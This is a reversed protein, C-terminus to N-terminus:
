KGKKEQSFVRFTRSISTKSYKEFIGEKKLLDVDAVTRKSQAWTVRYKDTTLGGAEKIILKIKADIGEKETTASNIEKMLELRLELAADIDAQKEPDTVPVLEESAAPYLNLLNEENDEAMAMPPTDGQVNEEWFKIAAHVQKEYLEEDFAIERELYKQGGVLVAFWGKKRGSLGLQLNVQLVYHIPIEDEGEKGWSKAVWAGCTKIEVLEETGVVVRDLECSLYPLTKHVYRKKYAMLKAPKHMEEFKKAVVAELRTGWEAYETEDDPEIRGTKLAWLKLPTCWPNLGMVSAIESAGIFKNREKKDM